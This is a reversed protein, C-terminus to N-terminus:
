ASDTSAVFSSQGLRSEGDDLRVGKLAIAILLGVDFLPISVIIWMQRQPISSLGVYWRHLLHLLILLLFSVVSALLSLYVLQPIKGMVRLRFLRTATSVASALSLSRLLCFRLPSPECLLCVLCCSLCNRPPVSHLRTEYVIQVGGSDYSCILITHGPM